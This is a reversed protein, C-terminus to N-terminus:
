IASLQFMKHWPENASRIYNRACWNAFTDLNVVNCHLLMKYMCCPPQLQSACFSTVTMGHIAVANNHVDKNALLLVSLLFVLVLVSFIVVLYIFVSFVRL